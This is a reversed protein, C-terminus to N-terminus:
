HANKIRQERRLSYIWQTNPNIPQRKSPVPDEKLDMALEEAVDRFAHAFYRIEVIGITLPPRIKLTAGHLGSASILFRSERLGDVIRQALVPDPKGTRPDRVDAGVFLGASRIHGLLKSSWGAEHVKEALFRGANAAHHVFDDRQVVDLVVQAAAISVPNGGFTNFYRVKEGFEKGLEARHVVAAIPMGNGMPKGLVAMDPGAGGVAPNVESHWRYDKGDETMGFWGATLHREFGWMTGTRAFGPQVEDAIWVGGAGRVLAAAATLWGVPGPVVGDSSCISDVLLAATGVGAEDFKAIAAAVARLTKEMDAATGGIPAPITAVYPDALEPLNKTLSPSLGAALATTGHYAGETVIVGKKGTAFRAMRVALDVAESGSCTFTVRDLHAPFTDLLQESYDLIGETLYRTHTNLRSLQQTVAATVEPHAHGLVPVNNYMDLYVDRDEDPGYLYVGDGRVVEVPHSYFLRYSDSLVDQRRSILARERASLDLGAQPDAPDFGNAVDKRM